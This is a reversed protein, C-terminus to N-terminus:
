LVTLIAIKPGVFSPLNIERLIEIASFFDYNECQIEIERLKEAENPPLYRFFIM